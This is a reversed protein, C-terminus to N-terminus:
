LSTWANTGFDFYSGQVDAHLWIWSSTDTRYLYLGSEIDGSPGLLWGLSASYLANPMMAAYVVGFSLSYGWEASFGFTHGAISDNIWDGVSLAFGSAWPRDNGLTIATARYGMNGARHRLMLYEGEGTRTATVSATYFQRHDRAFNLFDGTKGRANGAGGSPLVKEIDAIVSGDAAYHTVRFEHGDLITHANGETGDLDTRYLWGDNFWHVVNVPGDVALNVRVEMEEIDTNHWGGWSVGFWGDAFPFPTGDEWQLMLSFRETGIPLADPAFAGNAGGSLQAVTSESANLFPGDVKEALIGPAGSNMSIMYDVFPPASVNISFAEPTFTESGDRLGTADAYGWPLGNEVSMREVDVSLGFLAGPTLAIFISTILSLHKPHKSTM